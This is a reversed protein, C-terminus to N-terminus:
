RQVTNSIASMGPSAGSDLLKTVIQRAHHLRWQNTGSLEDRGYALEEAHLQWALVVAWVTHPVQLQTRCAQPRVRTSSSPRSRGRTTCDDSTSAALSTAAM